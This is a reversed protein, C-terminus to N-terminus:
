WCCCCCCPLCSVGALRTLQARSTHFSTPQQMSGAWWIIITQAAATSATKTSEVGGRPPSLTGAIKRVRVHTGRSQLKGSSASTATV